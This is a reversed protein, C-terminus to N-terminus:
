FDGVIITNNDIEDKLKILTQRWYKPAGILPTDVNEFTVDEQQISGNIM